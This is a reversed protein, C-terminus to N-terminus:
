LISSQGREFYLRVIDAARMLVYLKDASEGPMEQVASMIESFWDIM